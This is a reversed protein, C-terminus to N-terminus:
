LRAAGPRSRWLRVTLWNWQDPYRRILDELYQVLRNTNQTIDGAVTTDRTMVIEPEIVLHLGGQYNRILYLPVVAAESRLALSVPGRPSPVKQGFLLAEVRGKKLNDGLIFVIENKQLAELIRRVALRRPHSPIIRQNFRPVYSDIIKSIGKDRPLRFLTSFPLGEMGLRAGVLVFNGIHAGLAIVGKGKALAAELNKMGEVTISSRIQEPYRMQLFCDVLNRIFHEQVGKALGKKTAQSYSEGFAANLNRMIRRGPVLLSIFLALLPTAIRRFAQPSLLNLLGLFCFFVAELLRYLLWMSM